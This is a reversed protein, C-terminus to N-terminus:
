IDGKNKDENLAAQYADWNPGPKATGDENYGLIVGARFLERDQKDWIGLTNMEYEVAKQKVEDPTLGLAESCEDDAPTAQGTKCLLLAQPGIFESGAPFYATPRPSGSANPLMKWKILHQNEKPVNPADAWQDINLSAKM